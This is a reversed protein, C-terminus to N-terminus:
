HKVNSVAATFGCGADQDFVGMAAERLFNQSIPAPHAIVPM